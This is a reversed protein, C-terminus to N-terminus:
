LSKQKVQKGLMRRFFKKEFEWFFRFQGFVFGYMLLLVNYVPIILVWYLVSFLTRNVEPDSYLWSTIPKKMFMVSFGTCAFVLLILVVQSASQVNWRLMLKRIFGSAM